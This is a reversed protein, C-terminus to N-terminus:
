LKLGPVNPAPVTVTVTGVGPALPRALESVRTSLTRSPVTAEVEAVVAAMPGALLTLPTFKM